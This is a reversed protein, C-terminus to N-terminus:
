TDTACARFLDAFRHADRRVRTHAVQGLVLDRLQAGVDVLVELDLTVEAALDRRVDLALDLDAAVLAEAMPPTEGDAALAGAGVRARALARLLGHGAALLGPLLVGPVPLLFALMALGAAPPRRGLRRSRLFM